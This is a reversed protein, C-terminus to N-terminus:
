YGGCGREVADWFKRQEASLGGDLLRLKAANAIQTRIISPLGNLAQAFLVWDASHINYLTQSPGNGLFIVSMVGAPMVVELVNGARQISRIRKLADQDRRDLKLNSIDPCRM